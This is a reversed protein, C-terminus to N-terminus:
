LKLLELYETDVKYRLGQNFKNIGKFPYLIKRIVVQTLSHYLNVQEENLCCILKKKGIYNWYRGVGRYSPPSPM